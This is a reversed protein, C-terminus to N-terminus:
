SKGAFKLEAIKIHKVTESSPKTNPTRFFDEIKVGPNDECIKALAQVNTLVLNEDKVQDFM